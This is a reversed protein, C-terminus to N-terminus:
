QEVGDMQIDEDGDQGGFQTFGGQGARELFATLLGNQRGLDGNIKATIAGNVDEDWNANGQFFRRKAHKQPPAGLGYDPLGNCHSYFGNESDVEFYEGTLLSM